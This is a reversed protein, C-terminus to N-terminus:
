PEFDANTVTKQQGSPRRGRERTSASFAKTFCAGATKRTFRSTKKIEPKRIRLPKVGKGERITQLIM